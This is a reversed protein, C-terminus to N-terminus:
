RTVFASRRSLTSRARGPLRIGLLASILSAGWMGHAIIKHIMDSHSYEEDVHAPKVDGSMVVFLEIDDRSLPRTLAATEGALIEDFTRSEIFM